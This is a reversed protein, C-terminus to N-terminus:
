CLPWLCCRSGISARIGYRSYDISFLIILSENIHPTDFSFYFRAIINNFCIILSIKSGQPIHLVAITIGAFIENVLDNKVDFNKLSDLIPFLGTVTSYFKQSSCGYNSSQNDEDKNTKSLTIESRTENINVEIVSLSKRHNTVDESTPCCILSSRVKSVLKDVTGPRKIKEQTAYRDQLKNYDIPERNTDSFTSKISGSSQPNSNRYFLNQNPNLFNDDTSTTPQQSNM